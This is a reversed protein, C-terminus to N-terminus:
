LSNSSAAKPKQRLKYGVGEFEAVVGEESHVSVLCLSTREDEKVQRAVARLKGRAPKLYRMRVEKAVPPHEGQNCSIAFAQDALAFIAGGHGTGFGNLKGHLDMEVVVEDEGVKTVKMGNALAFECGEVAKLRARVSGPIMIGVSLQTM